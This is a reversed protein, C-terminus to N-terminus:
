PFCQGAISLWCRIIFMSEVIYYPDCLSNRLPWNQNPLTCACYTRTLSSTLDLWPTELLNSLTCTFPCDILGKFFYIFLNNNLFIINLAGKNYLKVWMITIVPYTKSINSKFLSFSYRFDCHTPRNQTSVTCLVNCHSLARYPCIFPFFIVFLKEFHCLVYCLLLYCVYQQM